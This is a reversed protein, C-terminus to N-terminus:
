KIMLIGGVCLLGYSTYFDLEFSRNYMFVNAQSGQMRLLFTGAMTTTLLTKLTQISQFWSSIIERKVKAVQTIDFNETDTRAQVLM